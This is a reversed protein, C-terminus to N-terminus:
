CNKDIYQKLRDKRAQVQSEDMYVRNGDEDLDYYLIGGKNMDALEAQVKYCRSAVEAKEQKVQDRQQKRELRESELYDSYKKQREQQSQQDIQAKGSSENGSNKLKMKEADKYPPFQSFQVRGNEDIVKYVDTAYLNMTSAVAMLLFLRIAIKCM